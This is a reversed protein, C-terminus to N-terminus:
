LVKQYVGTTNKIMEYLTFRKNLINKGEIGLKSGLNQDKVFLILKQALRYPSKEEVLYGNIGDSIMEPIDGVKTATVPLSQAMAYLISFPFLEGGGSVSTQAYIDFASYIDRLDDRFGTFIVSDSLGLMKTEEILENKLEGDGVIILKVNGCESKIVKFAKLLYNQGKFPVLRGTSGIVVESGSIGFEDRIRQRGANDREMEAPDIGNHVVTTKDLPVSNRGM